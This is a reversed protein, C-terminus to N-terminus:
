EAAIAALYSGVVRVGDMRRLADLDGVYRGRLDALALPEFAAAPVHQPLRAHFAILRERQGPALPVGQEELRRVMAVASDTLAPSPPPVDLGSLDAGPLLSQTVFRADQPGVCVVVRECGLPEALAPVLDAWGGEFAAMAPSLRAFSAANGDLAAQRWAALFMADYPILTLVLTDVARGLALRLATARLGAAPFFRGALLDAPTGALDPRLIALGRRAGGVSPRLAEAIRSAHGQLDSLATGARPFPAAVPDAAIAFGQSELLCRNKEAIRSLTETGTFQPGAHVTLVPANHM